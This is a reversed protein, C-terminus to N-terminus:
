FLQASSVATYDYYRATLLFCPTDSSKDDCLYKDLVPLVSPERNTSVLGKLRPPCLFSPNHDPGLSHVLSIVALCTNVVFICHVRTGPASAWLLPSTKWNLYPLNPSHHFLRFPLSEMWSHEPSSWTTMREQSYFSYFCPTTYIGDEDGVWSGKFLVLEWNPATSCMECDWHRAASAM